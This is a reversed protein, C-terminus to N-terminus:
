KVIRYQLHTVGPAEIVRTRELDILMAGLNDFLRVGAGLLVPALDLHIEDLLDAKICQQAISASSVAVNKNGAAQKAQCIASPVGDTVFTFPSGEKLWERPTSHTVIVKGM